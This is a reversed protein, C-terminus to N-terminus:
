LALMAEGVVYCSGTILLLDDKAMISEAYKVADAVTEKMLHNKTHKKVERALTEVPVARGTKPKTIIVTNALPVIEAIMTDIKKDDLIGIILVLNKHRLKEIEKGLAIMGAENHACDILINKRYFEFRGPWEVYELGLKIAKDPVNVQLERLGVAATVAVSANSLQFDGMLNLEIDQLGDIYLKGDRKRCKMLPVLQANKDKSVKKIVELAEGEAGTVVLSNEKIIGAKEKAIEKITRGLFQTHEISINTIVSMFPEVVNTADLRGGMGVEMVVYDVKKQKFYVFAMATVAEFFTLDAKEFYPKLKDMLWIVEEETIEDSNITLRETFRCLHPSVYRGIKYGANQLISDIMACVSGKGNTGAIHIVKLGKEPNGLLSLINKMNDLGLKIGKSQFSNIYDMVNEYKEYIEEFIEEKRSLQRGEKKEEEFKEGLERMQEKKKFLEEEIERRLKRSEREIIKQINEPIKLGKEKYVNILKELMNAELLPDDRCYKLMLLRYKLEKRINEDIEEM